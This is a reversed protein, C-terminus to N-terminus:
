LTAEMDKILSKLARINKKEGNRYILFHYYVNKGSCDVSQEIHYQDRDFMFGMPEITNDREYKRRMSAAGPPIWLYSSKFHDHRDVIKNLHSVKPLNM